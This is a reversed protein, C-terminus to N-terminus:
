SWDGDMIKPSPAWIDEFVEPMKLLDARGKVGPKEPCRGIVDDTINLGKTSLFLLSLTPSWLVAAGGTGGTKEPVTRGAGGDDSCDLPEALVDTDRYIGVVGDDTCVAASAFDASALDSELAPLVQVAEINREDEELGATSATMAVDVM